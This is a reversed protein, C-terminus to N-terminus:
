RSLPQLGVGGKVSLVPVRYMTTDALMAVLYTGYDAPSLPAGFGALLAEVSIGRRRAYAEAAARGVETDGVIQLPLVAQFALDLGQAAASGNAYEGLLWVMRKSGAYSGSLPSGNLAAGSSSVVVRGRRGM